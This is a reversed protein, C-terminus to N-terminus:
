NDMCYYAGSSLLVRTVAQRASGASVTNGNGCSAAPKYQMEGVVPDTEVIIYPKGTSPDSFEGTFYDNIFTDNVEALTPLKGTNNGAYMNLAASFKAVNNKHQQDVQTQRTSAKDAEEQNGTINQASNSIDKTNDRDSNKSMYIYVGLVLSILTVAGVVVLVALMKQRNAQQVPPAASPTIQTPTSPPSPTTNAVNTTPQDPQAADTQRGDNPQTPLPNQEPNM